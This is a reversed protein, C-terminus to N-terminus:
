KIEASSTMLAAFEIAFKEMYIPAQQAAFSIKAERELNGVPLFEDLVRSLQAPSDADFFLADESQERHVRLASLIMPAGM